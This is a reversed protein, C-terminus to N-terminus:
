EIRVPHSPGAQNCDDDPIRAQAHYHARLGGLINSWSQTEAYRRAANGLACRIGPTLALHRMADTFHTVNNPEVLSGSEGHRVIDGPGAVDFAIVPLGSAMAELVVNGFTESLSPFVFLESSAYLTALEEGHRYGAFVVRKDSLEELRRRLPGDGILLLRCNDLTLRQWTQMLIDLNKEAALRGAYTLVIEDDGIGLARRVELSRKGPNFRESDVGRGWVDVAAFGHEKLLRSTSDTPCYTMRTRNHFGRLYRWALPTLFSAGYLQLYQPFHTHYSSVIPLQLRECAKLAARGFPGETAIHVLDPRFQEIKRRVGGPTALPLVVERYFPLPLSPWSDMSVGEPLEPPEHYRPVLLQVEDGQSRCFRVLRDLTRSVGNVQPFYTESVLTLRM